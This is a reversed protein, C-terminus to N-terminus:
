ESLFSLACHANLCSGGKGKFFDVLFLTFNCPRVCSPELPSAALTNCEQVNLISPFSINLCLQLQTCCHCKNGHKGATKKEHHNTASHGSLLTRASSDVYSFTKALQCSFGLTFCSAAYAWNMRLLVLM